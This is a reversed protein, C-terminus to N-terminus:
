KTKKACEILIWIPATIILLLIYLGTYITEKDDKKMTQSGGKKNNAIRTCKRSRKM